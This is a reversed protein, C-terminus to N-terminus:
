GSENEFEIKEWLKPEVALGLCGAHGCLSASLDQPPYKKFFKQDLIQMVGKSFVNFSDNTIDPFAQSRGKTVFGRCEITRKM